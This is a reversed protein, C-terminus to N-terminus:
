DVFRTLGEVHHVVVTNGGELRRHGETAAQALIEKMVEGGGKARKGNGPGEM